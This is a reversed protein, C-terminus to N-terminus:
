VLEFRVKEPEDGEILDILGQVNRRRRRIREVLDLGLRLVDSETTDMEEALERLRDAREPTLRVKKTESHVM